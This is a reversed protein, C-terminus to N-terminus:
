ASREGTMPLSCPPTRGTSTTCFSVPLLYEGVTIAAATVLLIPFARRGVCISSGHANPSAFFLTMKNSCILVISLFRSILRMPSSGGVVMRRTLRAM